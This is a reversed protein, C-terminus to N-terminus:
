YMITTKRLIVFFKDLFRFFYDEYLFYTIKAMMVRREDKM